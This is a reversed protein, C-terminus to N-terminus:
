LRQQNRQMVHVYSITNPFKKMTVAFHIIMLEYWLSIIPFGFDELRRKHRRIEDYVFDLDKKIDTSYMM